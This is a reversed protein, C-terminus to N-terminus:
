RRSEGLVRFTLDEDGGGTFAAAGLDPPKRAPGVTGFAVIGEGTLALPILRGDADVGLDPDVTRPASRSASTLNTGKVADWGKEPVLFSVAPSM